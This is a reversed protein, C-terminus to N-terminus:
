QRDAPYAKAEKSDTIPFDAKGARLQEIASMVTTDM